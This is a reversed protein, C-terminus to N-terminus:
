LSSGDWVLTMAWHFWKPKELGNALKPLTSPVSTYSAALMPLELTCTVKGSDPSSANVGLNLSCRRLASKKSAALNGLAVKLLVRTSAAPSPLSLTLPSRVMLSMVRGTTSSTVRFLAAMWGILLAGVIPKSAM